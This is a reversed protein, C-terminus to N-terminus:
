LGLPPQMTLPLLLGALPAPTHSRPQLHCERSACKHPWSRALDSKHLVAPCHHSAHQPVARIIGLGAGAACVIEACSLSVRATCANNFAQRCIYAPLPARGGEGRCSFSRCRDCIISSPRLWPLSAAAAAPCQMVMSGSFTGAQDPRAPWPGALISPRPRCRDSKARGTGQAPSGQPPQRDWACDRLGCSPRSCAARHADVRCCAVEAFRSSHCILLHTYKSVTRHTCYRWLEATLGHLASYLAKPQSQRSCKIDLCVHGQRPEGARSLGRWRWCHPQGPDADHLASGGSQAATGRRLRTHGADSALGHVAGRRQRSCLNTLQLVPLTYADRKMKLSTGARCIPSARSTFQRLAADSLSPRDVQYLYTTKCASPRGLPVSHHCCHLIHADLPGRASPCQGQHM